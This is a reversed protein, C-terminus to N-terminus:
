TLVDTWLYACSADVLLEGIKESLFHKVGRRQRKSDVEHRAKTVFPSYMFTQTELTPTERHFVLVDNGIMSEAGPDGAMGESTNCAFDNYILPELGLNRLAAMVNFLKESSTYKFLRTFNDTETIAMAVDLNMLIANPVKGTSATNVEVMSKKIDSIPLGNSVVDWKVSPSDNNTVIAPNFAIDVIRKDRSLVLADKLIKVANTDLNVPKDTNEKKEDSVYKSLEHLRCKYTDENTKYEVEQGEGRGTIETDYVRLWDKDYKVFLGSDKKVKFPPAIFDGLGNPPNYSTAFNTLFQDIRRGEAM